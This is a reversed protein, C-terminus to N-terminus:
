PLAEQSGSSYPRREREFLHVEGLGYNDIHTHSDPVISSQLNYHCKQTGIQCAGLRSFDAETERARTKNPSRPPSLPVSFM